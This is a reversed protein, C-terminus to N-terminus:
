YKRVMAKLAADNRRAQPCPAEAEFADVATRLAGITREAPVAENSPMEVVLNPLSHEYSLTRYRLRECVWAVLGVNEAVRDHAEAAISPAIMGSQEVTRLRVADANAVRIATARFPAILLMDANADDMLRRYRSAPSRFPGSRLSQFYASIDTSQVSVPLVRTRALEQVQRDFYSREHAPMILRWARDRIRNEDDTFHFTLATREGRITASALGAYTLVPDTLFSPRPRGLDGTETFCGAMLLGTTILALRLRTM